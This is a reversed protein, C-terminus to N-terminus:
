AYGPWADLPAGWSHSRVITTALLDFARRRDRDDAAAILLGCFPQLAVLMKMILKGASRASTPNVSPVYAAEAAPVEASRRILWGILRDRIIRHQELERVARNHAKSGVPLSGIALQYGYIVAHLQRVLEQTARTDSLVAAPKPSRLRGLSPPPSDTVASFGTAALSLSSWLLADSGSSTLATRRYRRAAARESRALRALQAPVSGSPRAAPKTPAWDSLARAHARHADAIDALMARRGKSLGSRGRIAAALDALGIELESGRQAGSITPTTTPTGTSSPSGSAETPTPQLTSTAAPEEIRPDTLTCGALTPLGAVSIALGLRLVDRRSPHAM